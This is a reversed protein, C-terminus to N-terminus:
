RRCYRFWGQTCDALLEISDKDNLMRLDIDQLTQLAIQAKARQKVLTKFYVRIKAFVNTIADLEDGYCPTKSRLLAILQYYSCRLDM